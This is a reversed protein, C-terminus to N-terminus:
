LGAGAPNIWGALGQAVHQLTFRLSVSLITSQPPETVSRVVPEEVRAGAVGVARRSLEETSRACLRSYLARSAANPRNVTRCLANVIPVQSPAAITKATSNGWNSVTTRWCDTSKIGRSAGDSCVTSRILAANPSCPEFVSSNTAISSGAPSM